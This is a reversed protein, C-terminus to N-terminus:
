KEVAKLRETLEKMTQPQSAITDKLGRMEKRAVRQIEAHLATKINPM